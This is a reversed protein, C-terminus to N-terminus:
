SDALNAFNARSGAFDALCGAPEALKCLWNCAHASFNRGMDARPQGLSGRGKIFCTAIDAGEDLSCSAHAVSAHRTHSALSKSTGDTHWGLTHCAHNALSCRAHCALHEVFRTLHSWLLLLLHHLLLHHLLLLLLLLHRWLLLLLHHHLLGHHLLLLLLLHVRLLLLHHLLLHHLLLHHLLLLHLLLLLLLLLVSGLLYLHDLLGHHLLLHHLLLLLLM